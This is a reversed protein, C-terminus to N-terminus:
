AQGDRKWSAYCGISGQGSADGPSSLLLLLWLEVSALGMPPTARAVACQWRRVGGRWGNSLRDVLQDVLNVSARNLFRQRLVLYRLDLSKADPTQDGSFLRAGAWQASWM